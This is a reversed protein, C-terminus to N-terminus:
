YPTQGGTAGYVELEYIRTPTAASQTATTVNLRVYRASQAAIAHSSVSAANATVTVATTWTSGNTSLQITFARTNYTTSEGGAGAHRVTLSGLTQASGLDVQLWGPSVASCFKDSNGGSVSGNVAKAPAENANCAASGTAPRNLALNTQASAVTGAFLICVAVAVANERLRM